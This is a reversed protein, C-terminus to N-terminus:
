PLFCVFMRSARNISLMIAAPPIVSHDESSHCERQSSSLTIRNHLYCHHAIRQMIHMCLLKQASCPKFRPPLIAGALDKMAKGIDIVTKVDAGKVIPTILGGETAVAVSVDISPFRCVIVRYM